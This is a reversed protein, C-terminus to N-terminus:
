HRNADVRGLDNDRLQLQVLIALVNQLADLSTPLIRHLLVLRDYVTQTPHRTPCVYTNITGAPCAPTALSDTSIVFRIAMECGGHKCTQDLTFHEM